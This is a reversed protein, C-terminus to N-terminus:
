EPKSGFRRRWHDRLEPFKDPPPVVDWEWFTHLVSLQCAIWICSRISFGRPGFWSYVQLSILLVVFLMATWRAWQHKLWLGIGVFFLSPLVYRTYWFDGLHFMQYLGLAMFIVSLLTIYGGPPRLDFWERM